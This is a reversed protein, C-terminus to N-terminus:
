IPKKGFYGIHHKWGYAKRAQPNERRGGRLAEAGFAPALNDKEGATMTRNTTDDKGVRRGFVM